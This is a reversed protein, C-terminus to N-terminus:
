LKDGARYGLAFAFACGMVLLAQSLHVPNTWDMEIDGAGHVRSRGPGGLRVGTACGAKTWSRAPRDSRRLAFYYGCLCM